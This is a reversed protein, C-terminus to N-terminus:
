VDTADPRRFWAPMGFVIRVIYALPMLSSPWRPYRSRMYARPPLLHDRLIQVRDRWSGHRLDSALIGALHPAREVFAATPEPVDGGTLAAILGREPTTCHRAALQLSRICVARTGSRSAESVFARLDTEDLRRVLRDIDELWRPDESDAHHAVRHVCALLLADAWGLTRACPGLAAVATSRSWAEDFRLVREFVQPNAVRWHLDIADAAPAPPLYHRQASAVNLDPETARKYELRRLVGDAEEVQARDIFLDADHRQRDLPSDYLTYALAAGKVVLVRVGSAAFQNLLDILARQRRLDTAVARHLPSLPM